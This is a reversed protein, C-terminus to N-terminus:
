NKAAASRYNGKCKVGCEGWRGVVRGKSLRLAGEYVTERRVPSWIQEFQFKIKKQASDEALVLSRRNRVELGRENSEVVKITKKFRRM